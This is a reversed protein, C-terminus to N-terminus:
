SRAEKADLKAHEAEILDELRIRTAEDREAQGEWHSELRIYAPMALQHQELVRAPDGRRELEVRIQAYAEIPRLENPKAHRARERDLLEG